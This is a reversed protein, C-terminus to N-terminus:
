RSSGPPSDLANMSLHAAAKPSCPLLAPPPPPPPPSSTPTCLTYILYIGLTVLYWVAGVGAGDVM